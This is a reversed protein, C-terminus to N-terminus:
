NDERNSSATPPAIDALLFNAGVGMGRLAIAFGERVEHESDCYVIMSSEPLLDAPVEAQDPTRAVDRGGPDAPHPVDVTPAADAGIPGCPNYPSISLKREDM